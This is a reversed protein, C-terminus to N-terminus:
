ARGSAANQRDEGGRNNMCCAMKEGNTKRAGRGASFFLATQSYLATQSFFVKVLGVFAGDRGCRARRFTTRSSCRLVVVCFPRVRAVGARAAERIAEVGVVMAMTMM